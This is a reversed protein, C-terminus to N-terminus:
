EPRTPQIDTQEEAELKQYQDYHHLAMLTSAETASERSESANYYLAVANISAVTAGVISPAEGTVTVLASVATSGLFVAAWNRKYTAEQRLSQMRQSLVQIAKPREIEPDKWYDRDSM